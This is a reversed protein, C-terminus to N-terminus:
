SRAVKHLKGNELRLVRDAKAAIPQEHTVIVLSKGRNRTMAWLLEIVQGGIEVDLNGTPEDALIVAPDNLLARAIAVRQQEGGSLKAPLHNARDGLGVRELLDRARREAEAPRQRALLAPMAVNEWARLEPMLHHFQFVLGISDRRFRNLARGSMAAVDHGNFLIAGKTPRDLAGLLNLLTSKGSGSQGTIAVAEGETLSFDLGRLVRLTLDGDHYDKALDRAQILPCSRGDKTSPKSM